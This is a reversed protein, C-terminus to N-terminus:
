PQESILWILKDAKDHKGYDPYKVEGINTQKKKAARTKCYDQKEEQIKWYM